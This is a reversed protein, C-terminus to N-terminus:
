RDDYPTSRRPHSAYLADFGDLRLAHFNNSGKTFIPQKGYCYYVYQQLPFLLLFGSFKRLM